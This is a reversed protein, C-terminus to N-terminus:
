RLMGTSRALFALCTNVNWSIKGIEGGSSYFKAKERKEKKGRENKGVRRKERERGRGRKRVKRNRQFNNM